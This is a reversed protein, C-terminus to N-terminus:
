LIIKYSKSFVLKRYRFDFNTKTKRYRFDFNAKM